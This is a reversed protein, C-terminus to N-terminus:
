RAISVISKTASSSGDRDLLFLNTPSLATALESTAGPLPNCALRSGHGSSDLAWITTHQSESDLKPSTYEWAALHWGGNGDSWANTPFLAPPKDSWFPTPAAGDITSRWM